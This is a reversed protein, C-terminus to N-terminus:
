KAKVSVYPRLKELSKEGIGKVKLLDDVQRFPGNEKRFEVIRKAMAEGIGPIAVLDQESAANLDVIAGGQAAAAPAAHAPAHLGAGLALLIACAALGAARSCPMSWKTSTM